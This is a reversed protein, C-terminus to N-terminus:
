VTACSLAITCVPYLASCQPAGPAGPSPLGHGARDHLVGLTLSTNASKDPQTVSVHSSRPGCASRSSCISSSELREASAASTAALASPPTTTSAPVSPSPAGAMRTVPIGVHAAQDECLAPDKHLVRCADSEAPSRTIATAPPGFPDSESSSPPPYSSKASPASPATACTIGVEGLAAESAIDVPGTDGARPSEPTDPTDPVSTYFLPPPALGSPFPGVPGPNPSPSPSPNRSRTAETGARPASSALWPTDGDTPPEPPSPALM